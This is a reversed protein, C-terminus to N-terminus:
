PLSPPLSTLPLSFTLSHAVASSSHTSRSCSSCQRSTSVQGSTLVEEAIGPTNIRNTAVLPVTVSGRLKETVWAFGGRPVSTAITPIRAEHWGIGTNIITAGAAEIARALEVVESWNSGGDVLDLMSLRFMVIFDPRTAARVREVITTALRTRNTFSGGWEDTRKNTRAAIFQNILYGESGMVEVGDYGAEEALSACRVFDDITAEIDYAKLGKPTFWGIPAKVASASVNFPHYGYRGSHLIQMAIKSGGPVAHVADTIEKHRAADGPTTMMAAMPAVRGANNPAIGGTVMLGVGGKAREEFFAAMRTLKHGWGEGEELGTHMSGMIARNVLKAGNALQLPSMLKPYLSMVLFGVTILLADLNKHRM